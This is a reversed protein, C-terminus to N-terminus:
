IWIIYVPRIAADTIRLKRLKKMESIIVSITSATKRTTLMQLEMSVVKM